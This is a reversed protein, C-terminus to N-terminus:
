HTTSVSKTCLRVVLLCSSVLHVMARVQPLWSRGKCYKKHKAVPTAGFHCKTGPFRVQSDRFEKFQFEQLKTPGYSQTWVKSQPSIQLLTITKKWVNGVTHPVGSSRLSILTIEFNLPQPWVSLKVGSGEKPWLKHKLQRFPEHSGMKSM